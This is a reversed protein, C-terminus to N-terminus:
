VVVNNVHILSDVCEDGSYVRPSKAGKKHLIIYTNILFLVYMEDSFARSEYKQNMLSIKKSSVCNVFVRLVFFQFAFAHKVLEM